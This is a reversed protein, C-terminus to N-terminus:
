GSTNNAIYHFPDSNMFSVLNVGRRNCVECDLEWDDGAPTRSVRPGRASGNTSGDPLHLLLVDNSMASQAGSKSHVRLLDDAFYASFLKKHSM